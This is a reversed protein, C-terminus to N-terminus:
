SVSKKWADFLHRYTERELVRLQDVIDSPLQATVGQIWHKRDYDIVVEGKHPTQVIIACGISEQKEVIRAPLETLDGIHVRSTVSM